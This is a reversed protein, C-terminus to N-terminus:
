WHNPVILDLFMKTFKLNSLACHSQQTCSDSCGGSKRGHSKRPYKEPLIEGTRWLRVLGEKEAKLVPKKCETKLREEWRQAKATNTWGAELKVLGSTGSSNPPQEACTLRGGARPCSVCVDGASVCQMCECVDCVCWLCECMYVSACVCVYMCVDYACVCWVQVFVDHVCMEYVWVCWMCEDCVSVCWYLWMGNVCLVEGVCLNFTMWGGDRMDLIVEEGPYWNQKIVDSNMCNGLLVGSLVRWSGEQKEEWYGGTRM